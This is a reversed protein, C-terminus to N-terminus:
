HGRAPLDKDYNSEYTASTQKTWKYKYLYVVRPASGLLTVDSGNNMLCLMAMLSNRLPKGRHCIVTMEMIRKESGM